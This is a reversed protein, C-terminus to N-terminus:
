ARRRSQRRSARPTEGASRADPEPRFFPAAAVEPLRDWLAKQRIVLLDPIRLRTIALQNRTVDPEGDRVLVPEVVAQEAIWHLSHLWATHDAKTDDDQPDAYEPGYVVMESVRDPLEDALMAAAIDVPHWRVVIGSPLTDVATAAYAAEVEAASSVQPPAATAAGVLDRAEAFAVFAAHLENANALEFAFGLKEQAAQLTARSDM